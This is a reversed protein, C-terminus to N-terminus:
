HNCHSKSETVSPSSYYEIRRCHSCRWASVTTVKELTPALYLETKLMGTGCRGCNM